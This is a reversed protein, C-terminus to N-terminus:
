AHEEDGTALRMKGLQIRLMAGRDPSIGGTAYRCAEECVRVADAFDAFDALAPGRWLGLAQRLVTAAHAPDTASPRAPPRSGASSSWRTSTAPM